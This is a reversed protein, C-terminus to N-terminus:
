LACVLGDWMGFCKFHSSGLSVKAVGTKFVEIDPRIEVDAEPTVLLYREQTISDDRTQLLFIPGKLWPSDCLREPQIGQTGIDAPNEEKPIFSWQNPSSSKSIRAVRNSVYIYFRCCENSLYGLVVKSDTYYHIEWLSLDLEKSLIEGVEM